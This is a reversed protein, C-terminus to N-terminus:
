CFTTATNRFSPDSGLKSINLVQWTENDISIKERRYPAVETEANDQPQNQTRKLGLSKNILIGNSFDGFNLVLIRSTDSVVTPKQFMLESLDVIPLAQGYLSILGKFWTQTGPVRSLSEIANMLLIEQIYNTDIVFSQSDFKVALGTWYVQQTSSALDTPSFRHELEKLILLPHKSSLSDM